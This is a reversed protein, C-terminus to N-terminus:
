GAKPCCLHAMLQGIRCSVSLFSFVGRPCGVDTPVPSGVCAPFFFLRRDLAPVFVFAARRATLPALKMARQPSSRPPWRLCASRNKSKSLSVSGEKLCRLLASWAPNDEDVGRRVWAGWCGGRSSAFFGYRIRMERTPATQQGSSNMPTWSTTTWRHASGSAGSARRIPFCDPQRPASFMQNIPRNADAYFVFQRVDEYLFVSALFLWTPPINLIMVIRLSLTLPFPEQERTITPYSKEGRKTRSSRFDPWTQRHAFLFLLSVSPLVFGGVRGHSVPRSGLFARRQAGFRIWEWYVRAPQQSGGGHGRAAQRSCGGGGYVVYMCCQREPASAQGRLQPPVLANRRKVQFVGKTAWEFVYHAWAWSGTDFWGLHFFLHMEEEGDDGTFVVAASSNVQLVLLAHEERLHATKGGNIQPQARPSRRANTPSGSRIMRKWERQLWKADEM